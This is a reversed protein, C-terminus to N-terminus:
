DDRRFVALAREMAERVPAQTLRTYIATAQLSKHGLAKGIITPSVGLIAMYSGLTRRLDHIRLNEIGARKLIRAWAFRPHGFAKGPARDSPFVWCSASTEQRRQLLQMAEPILSVFQSEGNKTDPIKWISLAFDIQEWRMTLVNSRRAGTYICMWFFDRMTKNPEANIAAILRELEDGPQVFRDRPRMKYRDVGICPNPPSIYDRKIGWNIVARMTDHCRNALYHGNNEALDDIWDQVEMRRISSVQRLTWRQFHRDFNAQTDQWRRTHHKAYKEIYLEALRGFTMTMHAGRKHLSPALPLFNLACIALTIQVVNESSPNFKKM